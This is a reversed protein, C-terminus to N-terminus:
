RSRCAAPLPRDGARGQPRRRHLRPLAPDRRLPRARRGRPQRRLRRPRLRARARDGAAAAHAVRVLAAAEDLRRLLESVAAGGRHLRDHLQRLHRRAARAPRAPRPRGPARPRPRRHRRDPHRHLQLQRLRLARLHRDHVHAPRPDGEAAGLQSYAILENLVMRTGAPRRDRLRGELARGHRAGAAHLRLRPDDRLSLQVGVLGGVSASCCTSSRSSRWSPSRADGRRQARPAPRREHRARRRRHRQRGRARDDLKVTGATEPQGTEPVLM